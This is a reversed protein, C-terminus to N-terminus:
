SRGGEIKETVKFGKGYRKVIVLEVYGYSAWLKKDRKFKSTEMGKVDVYYPLGKVPVVFFDPVYKNEPVGLAVRPQEIFEIVEGASRLLDLRQAYLMEGKSAYVRGNWTRDEKPAVRYKNRVM